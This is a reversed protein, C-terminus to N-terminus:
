KAPVEEKVPAKEKKADKKELAGNVLALVKGADNDAVRVFVDGNKTHLVLAGDSQGEAEGGRTFTVSDVDSVSVEVNQKVGAREVFFRNDQVKIDESAM